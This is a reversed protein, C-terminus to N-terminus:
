RGEDEFVADVLRQTAKGDDWPSFRDVFGEYQETFESARWGPAGLVEALEEPERTLPGPLQGPYDLYFGRVRDRYDELDPAHFIIPRGTVAFDFMISSYDTVLVDAALLLDQPDPEDSVDRYRDPAGKLRDAVLRHMRVLVLLDGPLRRDLDDLDLTDPGGPRDDRWTPAYLVAKVDPAIGLRQRVAERREGADPARLQDNRPYGVELVRGRYGFASRFIETCYPSPSVLDDWRRVDRALRRLYRAAEPYGPDPVDFGIKKLPTGHWTQVYRTHPLHLPYRPMMDNTVVYRAASLRAFYAPTNRVVRAMGALEAVEATPTPLEAAANEVVWVQELEPRTIALHRSVARPSDSYRGRWSELLVFPAMRVLM